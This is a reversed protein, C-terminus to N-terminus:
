GPSARWTASPRTSRQCCRVTTRSRSSTSRCRERRLRDVIAASLMGSGAGPDLVRITDGGPTRPLAAIIRAAELPTFYQGRRAQEVPDLSALTAQRREAARALLDV